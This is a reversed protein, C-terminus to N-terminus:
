ALDINTLLDANMILAHDHVLHQIQGAGGITGLPIKEEVYEAQFDTAQTELYHRIQDGEYGLSIHVQEIGYLQLLDMMHAIIPRDGVPLLPKPTIDTLPRLREGRGGAMLIADLPLIARKKSVDIVRQIHGAQNLVPVLQLAEGPLAQLQDTPGNESLHVFDQNMFHSVPDDLQYGKLLGRRIDRDALTGRLVQHRNLVLLMATGDLQNLQQLATRLPQDSSILRCAHDTLINM